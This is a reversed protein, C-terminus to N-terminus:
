IAHEYLDAQAHDPQVDLEDVEVPAVRKLAGHATVRVIGSRELAPRRPAQMLRVVKPSVMCERAPRPATAMPRAAQRSVAPRLLDRASFSIVTADTEPEGPTAPEPPQARSHRRSRNPALAPETSRRPRSPSPPRRRSQTWPGSIPRCAITEAVTGRLQEM